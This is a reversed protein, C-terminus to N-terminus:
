LSRSEEREARLTAVVLLREQKAEHTLAALWAASAEDVSDLDDVLLALPQEGAIALFWARLAAQIRMRAEGPAPPMPSLAAANLGLRRALEPSLHGLVPAHVAATSKALTPLADLVRLALSSVAAHTRAGGQADTHLVIFGTLRAELAFEQLLRSRGLGAEAVVQVSTSTGATCVGLAATLAKRQEERGVFAASGLYSDVVYANKEAPLKAVAVLREIVEGASGPRGLPDRSLLAEILADLAPPLAPLDARELREVCSSPARPTRRWHEELEYLERAPFAHRGTLLWYGLAGLSYLDTRQDLPQGHLAEPAIFPATGAVDRSTGFAALAGFDIVKIRGDPCRWLNRASLDRHILRRAHLLALASAADRMIRCVEPWPMPASNSLDGGVLLEMTYFPGREDAGYDYVEVIHPHRIGCLTHYEREFLAREKSTSSRTPRKLALYSSTSEDFVKFVSGMGGRGLTKEVRYRTAVRGGSTEEVADTSSRAPHQPM